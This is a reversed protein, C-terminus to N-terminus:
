RRRAPKKMSPGSSSAALATGVLGDQKAIAQREEELDQMEEGLVFEKHGNGKDLLVGGETPIVHPHKVLEPDPLIHRIGHEDEQTPLERAPSPPVSAGGTQNLAGKLMQFLQSKVDPGLKEAMADLTGPAENAAECVERDMLAAKAEQVGNAALWDSVQKQVTPHFPEIQDIGTVLKRDRGTGFQFGTTTRHLLEGGRGVHSEIITDKGIIQM